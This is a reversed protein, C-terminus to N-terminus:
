GKLVTMRVSETLEVFSLDVGMVTYIQGESFQLNNMGPNVVRVKDGPKFM